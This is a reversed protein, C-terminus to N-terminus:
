LTGGIEKIISDVKEYDFAAYQYLGQSYVYDYLYAELFLDKFERYVDEVFFLDSNSDLLDIFEGDYYVYRPLIIKEDIINARVTKHLGSGELGMLPCYCYDINEFESPYAEIRKGQYSFIDDVYLVNSKEPFAFVYQEIKRTEENYVLEFRRLVDVGKNIKIGLSVNEEIVITKVQLCVVLQQDLITFPVLSLDNTYYVSFNVLNNKQSYLLFKGDIVNEEEAFHYNKSDRGHNEKYSTLWDGAESIDSKPLYLLWFSNQNEQYRTLYTFFRHQKTITPGFKNCLDYGTWLVNYSLDSDPVKLQYELAFNFVANITESSEVQSFVGSFQSSNTVENGRSNQEDVSSITSPSQNSTVKSDEVKISSCNALIFISLVIISCKKMIKISCM